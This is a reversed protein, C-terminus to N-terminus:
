HVTRGKHATRSVNESPTKQPSSSHRYVLVNSLDPTKGYAKLRDIVAENGLLALLSFACLGLPLVTMISLLLLFGAVTLIVLTYGPAATALLLANLLAASLRKQPQEILLPWVYFQLGIWLVGLVFLAGTVVFPLHKGVHSSSLGGFLLTLVVANVAMWRVGLWGYWRIGARFDDFRVRQGYAIRNTTVYLGAVAAPLMVITLSFALWLLNAAVMARAHKWGNVLSHRLIIIADIM